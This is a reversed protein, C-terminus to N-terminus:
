HGWVLWLGLGATVVLVIALSWTLAAPLRGEQKRAFVIEILAIVALGLLGKITMIVPGYQFARIILIAGSILILIYLVRDIMLWTTIQKKESRTLGIVTVIALLVFSILHIWLWMM